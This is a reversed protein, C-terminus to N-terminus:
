PSRVIRFGVNIEGFSPSLSGRSSSRQDDGNYIWSGGRLVRGSGSAPGPPNTSPSSAYYSGSYWDNVWEWVNGSMDHLGFGNAAKQGVPRTQCEAGGSCTGTYYWSINEVQNDDNTGNPFGPMSHFATTTGARYVYEWEAETPLRTGTASLFGQVTTWSVSEVPRNPVQGAPVQASASKFFSPNSGMRATWQAQTVEYRGMYFANTLTVAHVPFESAQCPWQGSASCGMNFTGPPILVMEIQTLNDRVRWAYGTATIAARLTASTVIAPDPVAELLTAWTPTIVSIYNFGGPVVVSGKPGALVVDAAGVSGAPTVATVTTGSVAIVNTAPVGGIMVSTTGALFQGSITIPTGGSFVGVSPAISTVTQVVYTFPLPAPTTGAPTTVEIAAQGAAGAPTTARVQTSSLVELNTCLSSGVRVASTSALGTGTITIVTGGLVSGQPPSVSTINAPCNGWQTLVIALDVSDVKGDGNIDGSCGSQARTSSVALGFAAAILGLMRFTLGTM